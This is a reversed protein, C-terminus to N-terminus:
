ERERYLCNETVKVGYRQWMTVAISAWLDRADIDRTMLFRSAACYAAFEQRIRFASDSVYRRFWPWCGGRYRFASDAHTLEHVRIGEDWVTGKTRWDLVIVPVNNEACYTVGGRDSPLSDRLIAPEFSPPWPRITCSCLLLVAILARAM